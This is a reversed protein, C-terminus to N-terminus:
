RNLNIFDEAQVLFDKLTGRRDSDAEGKTVESSHKVKVTCLRRLSNECEDVSPGLNKRLARQATVSLSLPMVRMTGWLKQWFIRHAVPLCVSSCVRALGNYKESKMRSCSFFGQNTFSLLASRIKHRHGSQTPCLPVAPPSLSAGSTLVTIDSLIFVYEHGDKKWPKVSIRWGSLKEGNEKKIGM